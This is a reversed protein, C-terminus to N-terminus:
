VSFNLLRDKRHKKNVKRKEKQKFQWYKRNSQFTLIAKISTIQKNQLFLQNTDEISYITGIMRCLRIHGM